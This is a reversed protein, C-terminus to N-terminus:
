MKGEATRLLQIIHHERPGHGLIMVRCDVAHLLLVADETSGMVVRGRVRGGKTVSGGKCQHIAVHREGGPHERGCREIGVLVIPSLVNCSLHHTGTGLRLVASWVRRRRALGWSIHLDGIGDTWGASSGIAGLATPWTGVVPFKTQVLRLKATAPFFLTSTPISRFALKGMTFVLKTANRPM